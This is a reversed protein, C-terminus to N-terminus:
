SNGPCNRAFHGTRRCRFCVVRGDSLRGPGREQAPGRPRGWDPLPPCPGPNRPRNQFSEGPTAIPRRGLHQRGLLHRLEQMERRMEDLEDRPAERAAKQKRMALAIEVRGLNENLEVLSSNSLISVREYVDSQLGRLVHRVKEAESMDPAARHCLRLVEQLYSLPSEGIDQERNLLAAYSREPGAIDKFTVRLATVLDSYTAFERVQREYWDAANARLYCPLQVAKTTATWRNAEAARDFRGLFSEVDEEPRGSFTPPVVGVTVETATMEELDDSSEEETSTGEAPNKKEGTSKRRLRKGKRRGWM